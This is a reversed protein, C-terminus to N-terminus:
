LQSSNQALEKQEAQLSQTRKIDTFHEIELYSLKDKNSLV